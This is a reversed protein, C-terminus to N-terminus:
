WKRQQKYSALDIHSFLDIFRASWTHDRLCRDQGAKMIKDAEQPNDLYYRIKNILDDTGDYGVIEKGYEFYKSMEEFYSTFLLRGTSVAEFVGAKININGAGTRPFNVLCRTSYAAKFWEEGSVVGKTHSPWNTGYLITDFDEILKNTIEFRDPRPHGIVAVDCKYEPDVPRPVFYQSDVAFPMHYTRDHGLSLYNPLAQSSNTTHFDYHDSYVSVTRFIDPDSLTIGLVVCYRKLTNMQQVTFTLGGGCLIVVDPRFAKLHHMIKDLRVYVPGNGGLHRQPNHLLDVKGTLNLEQVICGSEILGNEISKLIENVGPVYRCIYTVRLGTLDTM